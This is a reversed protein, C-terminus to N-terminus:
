LMRVEISGRDSPHASFGPFRRAFRHEKNCQLIFHRESLGSSERARVRVASERVYRQPVELAALSKKKNKKILPTLSLGSPVAAV